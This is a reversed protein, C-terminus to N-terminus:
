EAFPLWGPHRSLYYLGHLALILTVLHLWRALRYRWLLSAPDRTSILCPRGDVPKELFHCPETTALERHEAEIEHAAAARAAEWEQPGIEGDHDHDFRRLLDRQDRKWEGLRTSLDARFSLNETARRTRFEGMVFLAEGPLIVWETIRYDGETYVQKEKIHIEAEAPNLIVAEQSDALLFSHESEITESHRYRQLDESDRREVEQRYWVCLRSSTPSLIPTGIPQATGSLRVYGQPAAAIRVTPTNALIRRRNECRWWAYLSWMATAILALRWHDPEGEFRGLLLIALAPIPTIILSAWARTWSRKM